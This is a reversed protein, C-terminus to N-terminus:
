SAAGPNWDILMSTTTTVSGDSETKSEMKVLGGPVSKSTWTKTTVKSGSSERVIQVWHCSVKRDGIMVDEDGETPKPEDEKPPAPKDIRAPVDRKQAPMATEEGDATTTTTTELVAKEDSLEVLKTTNKVTSKSGAADTTTEVTALAGAKFASWSQYEPNPVLDEAAAVGGCLGLLALSAVWAPFTIKSRM